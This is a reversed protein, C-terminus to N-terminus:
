SWAAEAYDSEESTPEPSGLHTNWSHTLGPELHRFYARITFSLRVSYSSYSPCFVLTHCSTCGAVGVKKGKTLRQRRKKQNWRRKSPTRIVRLDQGKGGHEALLKLIYYSSNPTQLSVSDSENRTRVQSFLPM